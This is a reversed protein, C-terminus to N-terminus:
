GWIAVSRSETGICILKHKRSKERFAVLAAKKKKIEKRESLIIIKLCTVNHTYKDITSEKKYSLLMGNHPYVM